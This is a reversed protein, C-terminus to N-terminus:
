WDLGPLCATPRTAGRDRATETAITIRGMVTTMDMDTAM